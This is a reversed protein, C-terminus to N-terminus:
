SGHSGRAPWFLILTNSAPDNEFWGGRDRVAGIGLALLIRERKAESGPTLWPDLLTRRDHPVEVGPPLVLKLKAVDMERTGRMVREAFLELRAGTQADSRLAFEILSSLVVSAVAAPLWVSCPLTARLEFNGRSIGTNEVRELAARALKELDVAEAQPELAEAYHQMRDFLNSINTVHESIENASRQVSAPDKALALMSARMGIVNLSNALVHSFSASLRRVLM